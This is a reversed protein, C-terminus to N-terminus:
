WSGSNKMSTWPEIPELPKGEQLLEISIGDPTKFFAMRGDRPPRNIEVGFDQVRQCIEYINEVAYAVHGFNRGSDLNEVQNNEDPWNYTIELLPTKGPLYEDRSACLFVLTFRGQESDHRRVEKFQLIECFFNLTDELNKVRLMTHLFRM